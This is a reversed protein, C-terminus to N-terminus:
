ASHIYVNYSCVAETNSMTVDTTGGVTSTSNITTVEAGMVLTFLRSQLIFNSEAKCVGDMASRLMLMLELTSNTAEVERDEDLDRWVIRSFHLDTSCTVSVDDGASHPGTGGDLM